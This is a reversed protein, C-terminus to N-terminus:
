RSLRRLLSAADQQLEPPLADLLRALRKKSANVSNTTLGTAEAIEQPKTIGDEYAMLLLLLADDAEAARFLWNRIMSALERLATQGELEIGTSAANASDDSPLPDDALESEGRWYRKAEKFTRSRIAGILHTSLQCKAPKWNLQGALTDILADRIYAEDADEPFPVGNRRLLRFRKRTWGIVKNLATEDLADTVAQLYAEDPVTNSSVQESKSGAEGDVM